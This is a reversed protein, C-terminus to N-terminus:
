SIGLLTLNSGASPAAAFIWGLNGGGDVSNAGAYFTAGGTATSNTITVYDISVIGSACSITHTSATVSQLSMLKGATGRVNFGAANTITTTTGATFQLSRGNSADTFNIGAFSNSGTVALRGTSGAVTYALTGYTRSGGIFTRANTSATGVAITANSANLTLGSVTTANWINVIGASMATWTGTGLSLTRTNSNSLGFTDATVNFNNADFTGNNLTFSSGTTFSDALTYTGGFAIISIPATFSRGASTITHSGRGAFNMTSAGSPTVNSALTLSGYIETTTGNAWTVAGSSASWDINKGLVTMDNTVTPSGSFASSLLVDDQPLPARTTWANASWNGGATGSWAQSAPTTFTIGSNGGADGFYTAGSAGTTWTAAGAGTIDRFLIVNTFTLAAATLSRSTGLTGSQVYLRNVASDSNLFLTGNATQSGGLSFSDNKVATGTRTLDNFTNTGALSVVTSGTFTMNYYTKGGGQITVTGATFNITSTGANFTYNTVIGTDWVTGNGFNFNLTSAGLSLSRVNSNSSNFLGTNITQGNTDLTGKTLTLTAFADFRGQTGTYKWSGNSAANFTVSEILKSAFDVTQQTASTSIFSYSSSGTITMGAVLKLAINSLAATADGITLTNSASSLTGTYGTYDVGRAVWGAAGAINGATVPIQADDAATPTVGGVWTGGTTWTGGGVDAVITSM